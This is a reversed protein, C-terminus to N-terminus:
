LMLESLDLGELLDLEWAGLFNDSCVGRHHKVLHGQSTGMISM